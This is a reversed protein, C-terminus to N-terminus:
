ADLSNGTSGDYDSNVSWEFNWPALGGFDGAQHTYTGDGDSNFTNSPVPFRVKARIGLEVDNNRNVTFAGNANGSGFIVDPIVNQDFLLQDQVSDSGYSWIAFGVALILYVVLPHSNKTMRM